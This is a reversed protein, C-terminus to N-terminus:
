SLYDVLFLGSGLCDTICWNHDVIGFFRLGFKVSLQHHLLRLFQSFLLVLNLRADCAVVSALLFQAKILVRRSELACSLPLLNMAAEQASLLYERRLM